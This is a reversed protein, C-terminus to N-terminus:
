GDLVTPVPVRFATLTNFEPLYTKQVAGGPDLFMLLGGMDTKLDKTM